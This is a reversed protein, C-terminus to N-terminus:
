ILHRVNPLLKSRLCAVSPAGATVALAGDGGRNVRLGEEKRPEGRADPAGVNVSSLIELATAQAVPLM